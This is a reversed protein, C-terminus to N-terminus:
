QAWQVFREQYEFGNRFLFDTHGGEEVRWFEKPEEALQFVKEGFEYEVVRDNTGHVILIPKPSIKEICDKPSESDSMLLWGLWQFPWTIWSRTLVKRGISRYSHFTSDVVIKDFATPSECAVKLAIIGGLSQGFIILKSAPDKHENIWALAARGDRVTGEPTPEGESIGYGRYDFIFFDFGKDLAWYLSYFHASLNQANGHFFLLTAKAPRTPSRFYWGHLRTGDESRFFVSEPKHQLKLPNTFSAGSPYYLLSSCGGLGLVASMLVFATLILRM